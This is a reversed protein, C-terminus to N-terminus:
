PLNDGRSARCFLALRHDLPSSDRLLNRNASDAVAPSHGVASSSDRGVIALTWYSFHGHVRLSARLFVFRKSDSSAQTADRRYSM